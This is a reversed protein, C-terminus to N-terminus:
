FLCRHMHGCCVCGICICSCSGGFRLLVTSVSLFFVGGGGGGEISSSLYCLSFSPICKVGGGCGGRLHRCVVGLCGRHRCRGRLGSNGRRGRRGRGSRLTSSISSIDNFPLDGNDSAPRNM